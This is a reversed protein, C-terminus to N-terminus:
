LIRITFRIEKENSSTHYHKALVGSPTDVHIEGLKTM